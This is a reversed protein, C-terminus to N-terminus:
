GPPGPAAQRVAPLHPTVRARLAEAAVRVPVLDAPQATQTTADALILDGERAIAAWRAAGEPLARAPGDPLVSACDELLRLLAIMVTPEASGYRRILGCVTSLYDAFRRGPVIVVGGAHPDGVVRDGLPRVAIACLIVSLHDMSQVATYPDNVAPSLAKCAM